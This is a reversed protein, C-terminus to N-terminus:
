EAILMTGSGENTFIEQLISDPRGGNIIHVQPVGQKLAELATTIKPIMGGSAIKDHILQLAQQSTLVSYLSGPTKVDRLIGDVTGLVCLKAADIAAALRSALTDANINFIQGELDAGLSCIVPIYNGDLLHHLVNSDISEIDAVYGFDVDRMEGRAEDHMRTPPRRKAQILNGDIGSLGVAPIGHKKFAAILDTNLQGAFSMKAVELMDASTVRRGSVFESTVGLKNGLETAHHGGGHVLILKIGVLSLLSLQEVIGDLTSADECLEGGLKIIFIKDRFAKIYPLASRLSSFDVHM